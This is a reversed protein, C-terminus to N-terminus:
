AGVDRAKSRVSESQQPDDGPNEEERVTEDFQNAKRRAGRRAHLREHCQKPKGSDDLYDGPRQQNKSQERPGGRENSAPLHRDGIPQVVRRMAKEWCDIAAISCDQETKYEEIDKSCAGAGQAQVTQQVAGGRLLTEQFRLQSTSDTDDSAFSTGAFADIAPREAARAEAVVKDVIDKVQAHTLHDGSEARQIVETPAEPPPQALHFRLANAGDLDGLASPM